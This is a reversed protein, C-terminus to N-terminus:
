ARAVEALLARAAAVNPLRVQARTEAAGVKMAISGEPLAAFLDEDTRDDGMALVLTGPAAGELARAAARGKHVGHPRIEVVKDGQLIEVPVNSLVAQLHVTLERAQVAGHEPDAARYHWALGATKEEVLSGPTRDAFDRLIDLVPERWPGTQVDTGVWVGGPPRHWFGHEAHLGVPLAGFWRELTDRRRGSVLDLTTNKRRALRGLLALLEEDPAALEPTPEFPVLTGDYDLLLALRKAERVRAVAERLVARTSPRAPLEVASARELHEVFAAAWEHVGFSLVRQRLVAMRTRREVEPMHLARYLADATRDVDYPNVRLAESLEAAAGAFESLVLVGDGDPRSAVFEKAVLNMGDRLPTVLVADAARYLAVVEERSLGRYLYHVPSWNPTAFEGDIRGVLADVEERIERYAGVKERSPVSVQVLRVKERLEAHRALLAEYALLRRPIGKTYDLRDIGVLLRVGGARHAEALAKVEPSEALRAYAEADVGMPFIGLRVERGGWRIRDVDTAVSALRLASSAFHRLYGATHFGVLDAGLLGELIRERQPLLRFVESSPFPIHLFFGIRAEPIRERLMQPVLMLQYDHVWVLDGPQYRAAVADAFRANVAEYADFDRVVPPVQSAFYHFLPWLVGNSYSEYYRAIEDAGLPVPVLRMEELRREVGGRAGPSVEDLEGPWGIWLGGMREHPGKMGTALGGTSEDVAVAGGAVRVTVPLRNSAILLRPM